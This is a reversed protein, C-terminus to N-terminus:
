VEINRYKLFNKRACEYIHHFFYIIALIILSYYSPWMKMSFLKESINKKKVSKKSKISVHCLHLNKIQQFKVKFTM